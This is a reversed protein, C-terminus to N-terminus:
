RTARGAVAVIEAEIARAHARADFRAAAAARAAAGQRARRAPDVLAAIMAGALAEVDGPPVLAGTVGHEIMELIGGVAFGIVPVGAAMAEIVARPLPDANISPVVAVDFGSVWAAVDARFGTFSARSELGLRRALERCEAVHDPRFDEPTDGVVVVHVRAAAEPPAREVVLRTAQLLEVIGKKRLIRGHAGFVVTDAPLELTRRLVPAVAFDDVRVGNHIVRVKPAVGGFQAAAATSVCVIRVVARSAALREHLGLVRDPVECYRVHWLAPVRTLAGIAGTVFCATTGNAYLVDYRGAVTRGVLSALGFAALGVNGVLRAGRLPFPAEFDCREMPRGLPAIPNEVLGPEIILEDVAGAARLEDALLGPRPLVVTRHVRAPDLHRLISLLSRPPGGNRVTDNVFLVRVPSTAVLPHRM